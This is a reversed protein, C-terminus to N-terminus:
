FRLIVFEASSTRAIASSGHYIVFRSKRHLLVDYQFFFRDLLCCEGLVGLYYSPPVQSADVKRLGQGKPVVVYESFKVNGLVTDGTKFEPNASMVVKGVTGGWLPQM